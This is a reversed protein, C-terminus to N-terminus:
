FWPDTVGNSAASVLLWSLLPSWILGSSTLAVPRIRIFVGGLVGLVSAFTGGISSGANSAYRLALPPYEAGGGGVATALAGEGAGDTAGTRLSASASLFDDSTKTRFLEAVESAVM